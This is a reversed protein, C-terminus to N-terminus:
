IFQINFLVLESGWFRHYNSDEEDDVFWHISGDHRITFDKRYIDFVVDFLLNGGPHVICKEITGKGFVDLKIRKDVINQNYYSISTPMVDERELGALGVWGGCKGWFDAPWMRLGLMEKLETAM